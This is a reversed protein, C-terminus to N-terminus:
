DAEISCLAATLDAEVGAQHSQIDRIQDFDLQKQSSVRQGALRV